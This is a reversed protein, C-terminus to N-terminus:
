RNSTSFVPSQLPLSVRVGEEWRPHSIATMAGDKGVGRSAPSRIVTISACVADTQSGLLVASTTVTTAVSSQWDHPFAVFITWRVVETSPAHQPTSSLIGSGTWDALGPSVTVYVRVTFFVPLFAPSAPM